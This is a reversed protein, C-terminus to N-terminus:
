PKLLIGSRQKEIIAQRCANGPVAPACEEGKGVVICDLDKSELLMEEACSSAHYGGVTVTASPLVEKVAHAARLTSVYEDGSTCSIGVVDPEESAIDDKFRESISLYNERTLPIGYRAFFDWVLVDSIKRIYSGLVLINLPMDLLSEKSLSPRILLTKMIKGVFSSNTSVNSTGITNM